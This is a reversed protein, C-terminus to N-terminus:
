NQYLLEDYPFFTASTIELLSSNFIRSVSRMFKNVDISVNFDNMLTDNFEDLDPYTEKFEDRPDAFLDNFDLNGLNDKLFDNVVNQPSRSFDLQNTNIIDRGLLDSVQLASINKSKFFEWVGYCRAMVDTSENNM